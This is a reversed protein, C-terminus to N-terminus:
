TRVERGIRARALKHMKKARRPDNNDFEASVWSGRSGDNYIERYIVRREVSSWEIIEVTKTRATVM